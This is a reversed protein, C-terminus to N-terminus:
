EGERDPESYVCHSNLGCIWRCKYWDPNAKFEETEEIERVTQVAWRKTSEYKEMSFREEVLEGSRFCNLALTHPLEGYEQEVAASYLYLQMMMGERITDNLTVRLSDPNAPKVVRSKHDVLVIGDEARGVLDVIGIFPIGDISFRVEKEVGLVEMELPRFTRIYEAGAEVYKRATEPQPRVGKVSNRFDLIYSSLMESRTIEGSYFKALLSHMFSGYSAYFMDEESKKRIYTLYWRYPCDEYAKIRSFSWTMGEILPKYRIEGM